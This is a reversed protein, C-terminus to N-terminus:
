RMCLSAPSISPHRLADFIGDFLDSFSGGMDGRGGFLDEIDITMGGPFGGPGAAAGQFAAHGFRDYQARKESNSLVEYAEGVEKFQEAASADPNVDPHLKRALRRYADKVQKQTADREIGLVEYYDRKEAM